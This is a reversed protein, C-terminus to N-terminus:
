VMHVTTEADPQSTLTPVRAHPARTSPGPTAQAGVAIMPTGVHCLNATPSTQIHVRRLDDRHRDVPLRTLHARPPQRAPRALHHLEASTQRARRAHGILGARRPERERPRQLFGAHPTHDRRRALDLAGRLVPHLGVLAIGLAEHPQQHDISQMWDPDGAALFLRQAIQDPRTLVHTAVQHAGTVAHALQQQAVVDRKVPRARVPGNTMALPEPTQLQAVTQFKGRGSERQQVDVNAGAGAGRVQGFIRGHGGHTRVVYVPLAYAALSPKARGSAFRLGTNFGGSAADDRLGYQAVSAIRPNLFAVYDAYNLYRAQDALSVGFPDPPRTQYGFETLYVPARRAIVRRRAAADLV